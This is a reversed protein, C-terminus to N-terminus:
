RGAAVTSSSRAQRLRRRERAGRARVRCLPRGGRRGSPEDARPAAQRGQGLGHGVPEEPRRRRTRARLARRSAARQRLSARAPRRRARQGVCAAKARAGDPAPELLAQLESPALVRPLRAEGAPASLRRSPDVSILEHRRLWAFYRRIAAAKRPSPGAPTGARRWTRWIAGCCSVTSRRRTRCGPGTRGRWSRRSTAGTRGAPRRRTRRSRACSIKSSLAWLEVTGSHRACLHQETRM